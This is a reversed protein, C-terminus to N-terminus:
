RQMLMREMRVVQVSERVINPFEQGRDLVKLEYKQMKFREKITEAALSTDFPKCSFIDVSLYRKDPFTHISIHSEAILVFGSIGRDAPTAGNQRFVCPPTIKTMDMRAPCKDLFDYILGIDDLNTRDCGYGDLILHVGFGFEPKGM